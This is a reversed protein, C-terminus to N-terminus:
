NLGYKMVASKLIEDEINKWISGKVMYKMKYFHSLILNLYDYV